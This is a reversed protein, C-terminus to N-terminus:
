AAWATGLLGVLVGAAVYGAIRTSVGIARSRRLAYLSIAAYGAVLAVPWYWLALTPYVVCLSTSATPNACHATHAGYRMFPTALLTVVGFVVLTFRGM